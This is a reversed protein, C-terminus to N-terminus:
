LGSLYIIPISYFGRQNQSQNLNYYNDNIEPLETTEFICLTYM